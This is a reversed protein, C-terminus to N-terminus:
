SVLDSIHNGNGDAARTVRGAIAHHIVAQIRANDHNHTAATIANSPHGAIADQLAQFHHTPCIALAQEYSIKGAHIADEIAAVRGASDSGPTLWWNVPKQIARAEAILRSYAERFAMSAGVKDVYYLERCTGWAAMIEDNVIASDAEDKPIMAWAEYAGPRGDDLRTLIAPLTLRGQLERRCKKLAGEVQTEPYSELDSLLVKGATESIATGCLEATVILLELLKSNM